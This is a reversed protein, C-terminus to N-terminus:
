HQYVKIKTNPSQLGGPNLEGVEYDTKYFADPYESVVQRLYFEYFHSSFNDNMKELSDIQNLTKEKGQLYILNIYLGAYAMSDKKNSRILESYYTINKLIHHNDDPAKRNLHKVINHAM